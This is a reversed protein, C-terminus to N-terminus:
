CAPNSILKLEAPGRLVSLLLLCLCLLIHPWLKVAKSVIDIFCYRLRRKVALWFSHAEWCIDTGLMEPKPESCPIVKVSCHTDMKGATYGIMSYVCCLCCSIPRSSRMQLEPQSATHAWLSIINGTKPTLHTHTHLTRPVPRGATSWGEATLLSHMDSFGIGTQLLTTLHSHNITIVTGANTVLRNSWQLSCISVCFCLNM